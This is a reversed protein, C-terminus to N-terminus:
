LSLTRSLPHTHPPLPHPLPTLGCWLRIFVSPSRVLREEGGGWFSIEPSSSVCRCSSVSLFFVRVLKVFGEERVVESVLRELDAKSLTYLVSSQHLSDLLGETPTPPEPANPNPNLPASLSPISPPLPPPGMSGSNSSIPLRSRRAPFLFLRTTRIRDTWPLTPCQREKQNRRPKELSIGLDELHLKLLFFMIKRRQTTARQAQPHSSRFARPLKDYCTAYLSKPVHFSPLSCLPSSSPLLEGTVATPVPSSSPIATRAM